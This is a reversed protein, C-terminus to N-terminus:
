NKMAAAEARILQARSKLEEPGAGSAVRGDVWEALERKRQQAWRQRAALSKVGAGARRGGHSRPPPSGGAQYDAMRAHIGEPVGDLAPPAQAQVRAVPRKRGQPNAYDRERSRRTAKNKKDKEREEAAKAKIILEQGRTRM